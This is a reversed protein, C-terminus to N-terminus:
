ITCKLRKYPRKFKETATYLETPFQHTDVTHAFTKTALSRLSLKHTKLGRLKKHAEDNVERLEHCM